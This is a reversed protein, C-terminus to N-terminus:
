THLNTKTSSNFNECNSIEKEKGFVRHERLGYIAKKVHWVTNPKVINMKVLTMKAFTQTSFASTIDISSWTTDLASVSSLMLRLLPADLNTTTTSHEGWAAFNRAKTSTTRTRSMRLRSFKPSRNSCSSCRALCLGSEWQSSSSSSPLTCRNDGYEAALLETAVVALVRLCLRLQELSLPPRLHGLLCGVSCLDM